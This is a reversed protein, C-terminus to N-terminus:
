GRFGVVERSETEIFASRVCPSALDTTRRTRRPHQAETHGSANPMELRNAGLFRRCRDPLTFQDGLPRLFGLYLPIQSTM